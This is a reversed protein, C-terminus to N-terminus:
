CGGLTLDALVLFYPLAKFVFTGDHNQQFARVLIFVGSDITAEDLAFVRRTRFLHMILLTVNWDDLRRTVEDKAGNLVLAIVEINRRM